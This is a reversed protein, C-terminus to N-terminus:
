VSSIDSEPLLPITSDTYRFCLPQDAKRNGCLQDADKIECIHFFGTKECRPEHLPYVNYQCTLTIKLPQFNFCSQLHFISPEKIPNFIVLRSVHRNNAQSQLANHGSVESNINIRTHM